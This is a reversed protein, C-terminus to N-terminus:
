VQNIINIACVRACEQGQEVEFEAGLKGQNRLLGLTAALNYHSLAHTEDAKVAAQSILRLVSERLMQVGVEGARLEERM